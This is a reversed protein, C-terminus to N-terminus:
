EINNLAKEMDEIFSPKQMQALFASHILLSSNDELIIRIEAWGSPYQKAVFYDIIKHETYSLDQNHQMFRLNKTIPLGFKKRIEYTDNKSIPTFKAM